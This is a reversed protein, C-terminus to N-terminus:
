LQYTIFIQGLFNRFEDHRKSSHPTSLQCYVKKLSHLWWFLTDPPHQVAHQKGQLTRKDQVVVKIIASEETISQFHWKTM